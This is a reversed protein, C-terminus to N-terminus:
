HKKINRETKRLFIEKLNKATREYIDLYEKVNEQGLENMQKELEMMDDNLTKFNDQKENNIFINFLTDVNMNLIDKVKNSDKLLFFNRIKKKNVCSDYTSYKSSLNESFVEYIKLNFWQLNDRRKMNISFKAEIKKLWNKRGNRKKKEICYNRYEDNIYLRVKELFRRKLKRIINDEAFKNHKGKLFSNKKLRGLRKNTKNIEFIKEKQSNNNKNEQNFLPQVYDFYDFIKNDNTTNMSSINNHELFNLDIPNKIVSIPFSDEDNYLDNISLDYDLVNKNIRNNLDWNVNKTTFLKESSIRVDFLDYSLNLM